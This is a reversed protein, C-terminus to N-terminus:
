SRKKPRKKPKKPKPKKFDRVVGQFECNRCACFSDDDWEYDECRDIGGDNVRAIASVMIDFSKEHGCKPCKVGELCNENPM